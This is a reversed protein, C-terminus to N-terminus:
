AEMGPAAGPVLRSFAAERAKEALALRDATSEDAGILANVVSELEAIRTSLDPAAEPPMDEPYFTGTAGDYLFGDPPEPRLFAGDLYGWGEFVEDPAEIFLVDEPYLGATEGASRYPTQWHCVGNLIQFVKM